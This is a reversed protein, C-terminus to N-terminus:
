RLGATAEGELAKRLQTVEKLLEGLAFAIFGIAYSQRAERDWGLLPRYGKALEGLNPDILADSTPSSDQPM